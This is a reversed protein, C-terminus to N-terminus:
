YDYLDNLHTRGDGTQGACRVLRETHKGSVHTTSLRALLMGTPPVWEDFKGEQEDGLGFDELTMVKSVKRKKKKHKKSSQSQAEDGNIQQNDDHDTPLFTPGIPTKRKSGTVRVTQTSSSTPTPLEAVDSVVVASSTNTPNTTTTTTTTAPNTTPSTSSSTDTATTTTQTSAASKLPNSKDLASVSLTLLHRLRSQESTVEALIKNLDKL